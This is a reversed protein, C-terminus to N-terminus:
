FFFNIERGAMQKISKLLVNVKLVWADTHISNEM